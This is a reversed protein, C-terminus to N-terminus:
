RIRLDRTQVGKGMRSWYATRGTTKMQFRTLLWGCHKVMWAVVRNEGCVKEQPYRALLGLRMTRLQSEVAFNPAEAAGLAGKSRKPSLQLETKEERRSAIERVVDGIAPEADSRVILQGSDLADLWAAFGKM